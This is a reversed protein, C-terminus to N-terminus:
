NPLGIVMSVVKMLGVSVVPSAPGGGVSVVSVPPMKRVSVAGGGGGGVVVVASGGGVAVVLVVAVSVVAVCFGGLYFRGTPDVRSRRLREYGLRNAGFADPLIVVHSNGRTSNHVTM